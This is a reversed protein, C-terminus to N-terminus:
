FTRGRRILMMNGNTLFPENKALWPIDAAVLDFFVHHLGGSYRRQRVAYLFRVVPTGDLAVTM